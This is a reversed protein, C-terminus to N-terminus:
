GRHKLSKIKIESVVVTFSEISKKKSTVLIIWNELKKWTSLMIQKKEFILCLITLFNILVSKHKLM